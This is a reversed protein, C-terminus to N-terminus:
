DVSIGLPPPVSSIWLFRSTQAASPSSFKRFGSSTQFLCYFSATTPALSDKDLESLCMDAGVSATICSKGFVIQPFVDLGEGPTNLLRSKRCRYSLEQECHESQSIAASLQEEETFFDFHVSLHNLAPSPRLKTLATNNHQIIMWTNEEPDSACGNNILRKLERRASFLKRPKITM